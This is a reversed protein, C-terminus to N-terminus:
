TYQKQDNVVVPDTGDISDIVPPLNRVNMTYQVSRTNSGNISTFNGSTNTDGTFITGDANLETINYNVTFSKAGSAKPAKLEVNSNPSSTSRTTPRRLAIITPIWPGRTRYRGSRPM